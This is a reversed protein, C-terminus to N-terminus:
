NSVLFLLRLGNFVIQGNNNLENFLSILSCNGLIFPCFVLIECAISFRDIKIFFLLDVKNAPIPVSILPVFAVSSIASIYLHM